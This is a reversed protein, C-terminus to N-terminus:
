LSLGGDVFITQGTIYSAAPMCLFAVASSIEETKGARHLPTKGIIGTRYEDDVTQKSLSTEVFGPAVCNVRISDKAWEFALNKAIQNLAGKTSAYVCVSPMAVVSAASSIFVINGKGSQRMLPYALQSLHFGSELNTAMILSYEEASIDEAPRIVATGVNNVLIDLKGDFSASVRKMLREREARSTVDCVSATVPLGLAKWRRLSENLEIEDRDCTHVSAGLGVLEEVIAHGISRAGGTVLATMGSLSWKENDGKLFITTNGEAM